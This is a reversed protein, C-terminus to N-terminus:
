TTQSSAPLREKGERRRHRRRHLVRPPVCGWRAASSREREPEGNITSSTHRRKRAAGPVPGRPRQKGAKGVLYFADGHQTLKFAKRTQRSSRGALFSTAKRVRAPVISSGPWRLHGGISAARGVSRRPHEESGQTKKDFITVDKGEILDPSLPRGTTPSRRNFRLCRRPSSSRLTTSSPGRSMSRSRTIRITSLRKFGARAYRSRRRERRTQRQHLDAQTRGSDVFTGTFPEGNEDYKLHPNDGFTVPTAPRLQPLGAGPQVDPKGGLNKGVRYATPESQLERRPARRPCAQEHSAPAEDGNDSGGSGTSVIEYDPVLQSVAQDPPELSWERLRKERFDPDAPTTRSGTGMAM